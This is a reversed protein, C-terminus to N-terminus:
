KYINLNRQDIAYIMLYIWDDFVTHKGCATHGRPLYFKLTTQQCQWPLCSVAITSNSM